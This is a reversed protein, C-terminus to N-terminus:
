MEIMGFLRGIKELKRKKLEERDEFHRASLDLLTLIKRMCEVWVYVLMDERWYSGTTATDDHLGGTATANDHLGSVTAANVVAGRISREARDLLPRGATATHDHLGGTAAANDHATLM